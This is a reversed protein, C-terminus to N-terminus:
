RVDIPTSSETIQSGGKTVRTQTLHRGGAALVVAGDAGDAVAGPGAFYDDTLAVRVWAGASLVAPAQWTAPHWDGDVSVEITSDAPDFSLTVTVTIRARTENDFRM